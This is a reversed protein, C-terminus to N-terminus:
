GSSQARQGAAPLVAQQVDVVVQGVVLPLPGAALLPQLGQDLASQFGLMRVDDLLSVMRLHQLSLRRQAAKKIHIVVPYRTRPAIGGIQLMWTESHQLSQTTITAPDEYGLVLLACLQADCGLCIQLCRDFRGDAEGAFSQM